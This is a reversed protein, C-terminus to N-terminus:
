LAGARPVPWPQGPWPAERHSLFGGRGMQLVPDGVVDKDELLAPCLDKDRNSVWTFLPESPEKEM